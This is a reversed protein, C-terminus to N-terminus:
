LTPAPSKSALRRAVSLVLALDDSSLRPLSVIMEGDETIEVSAPATPVSAVVPEMDGDVASWGAARLLAGNTGLARDIGLVTDRDPVDARDGREWQSVSTPHVGLTDALEQQLVGARIRALKMEIGFERARERGKQERGM